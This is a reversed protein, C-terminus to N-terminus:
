MTDSEPVEHVTYGPLSRQGHTEGHLLVPTPQMEEELPDERGLSQVRTGANAPSNKIVSGGPFGNNM